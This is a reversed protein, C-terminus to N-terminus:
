AGTFRVEIQAPPGVEPPEVNFVGEPEHLPCQAPGCRRGLHGFLGVAPSPQHDGGVRLEPQGALEDVIEAKWPFASGVRLLEGWGSDASPKPSETCSEACGGM